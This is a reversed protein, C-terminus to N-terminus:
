TEDGHFQSGSSYWMYCYYDAEDEPQTNTITLTGVNGSDSATFRDPVGDGRNYGACQIFRPREGSRQQVWCITNKNSSVTCSLKVMERLAVAESPPQTLTPQSTVGSWYSLLTLLFFAWAM